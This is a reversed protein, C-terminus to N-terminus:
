SSMSGAQWYTSVRRSREERPTMGFHARYTSSFHPGSSFGCALGVQLISQSSEQLLTRAHALRMELYHKSPLTDLHQKFLRELQRRSVGVLRAIDDGPLPEEFNAKMLALAETLKPHTTTRGLPASGGLDPAAVGVTGSAAIWRNLCEPAWRELVARGVLEALTQADAEIADAPAATKMEGRLFFRREASRTLWDLASLCEPDAVGDTATVVRVDAHEASDSSDARLTVGEATVVDAQPALACLALRTEVPAGVAKLSNNLRALQAIPELSQGPAVLIVIRITRM